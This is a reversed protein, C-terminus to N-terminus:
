PTHILTDFGYYVVRKGACEGAGIRGAGRKEVAGIEDKEGILREIERERM